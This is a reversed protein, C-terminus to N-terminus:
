TGPDLLCGDGLGLGLLQGLAEAEQAVDLGRGEGLLVELLDEVLGDHGSELSAGDLLLPQGLLM